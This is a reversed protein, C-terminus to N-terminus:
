GKRDAQGYFIRTKKQRSGKGPQKKKEGKEGSPVPGTGQWM